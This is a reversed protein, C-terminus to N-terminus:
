DSSQVAKAVASPKTQCRISVNGNPAIIEQWSMTSVISAATPLGESSTLQNSSQSVTVQTSSQSSTDSTTSSCETTVNPGAGIM